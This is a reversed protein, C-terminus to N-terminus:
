VRTFLRDCHSCPECHAACSFGFARMLADVDPGLRQGAYVPVHSVEVVAAEIAFGSVAGGLVSAMGALIEHEMGQADILLVNVEPLLGPPLSAVLDDFRQACLPVRCVARARVVFSCM